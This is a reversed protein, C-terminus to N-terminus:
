AQIMTAYIKINLTRPGYRLKPIDFKHLYIKAHEDSVQMCLNLVTNHKFSEIVHLFFSKRIM